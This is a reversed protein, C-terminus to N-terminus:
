AAASSMVPWPPAPWSPTWWAPAASTEKTGNEGLHEGVAETANQIGSDAGNALGHAPATEHAAETVVKDLM